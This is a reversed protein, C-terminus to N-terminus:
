CREDTTLDIPLMEDRNRLKQANLTDLLYKCVSLKGTAAAHHLATNGIKDVKDVDIVREQEEYYKHECITKIIRLSDTETNLHCAMMLSNFGNISESYNRDAYKDLLERIITIDSQDKPYCQIAFLLPSLM